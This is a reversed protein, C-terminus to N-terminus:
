SPAAPELQSQRSQRDFFMQGNGPLTSCSLKEMMQGRGAWYMQRVRGCNDKFMTSVTLLTHRTQAANCFFVWISYFYEVKKNKPQEVVGDRIHHHKQSFPNPNILKLLLVFLIPRSIESQSRHLPPFPAGRVQPSLAIPPVRSRPM